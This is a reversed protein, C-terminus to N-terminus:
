MFCCRGYPLHQKIYLAASSLPVTPPPLRICPCRLLTHPFVYAQSARMSVLHILSINM